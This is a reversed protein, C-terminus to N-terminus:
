KGGSGPGGGRYGSGGRGPAPWYSGVDSHWRQHGRRYTEIEIRSGGRLGPTVAVIHDRYRLYHRNASNRRARPSRHGAIEGAVAAPPRGSTWANYGPASDYTAAIWSRPVDNGSSGCGTLLTGTMLLAVLLGM